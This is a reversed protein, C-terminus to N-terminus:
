KAPYYTAHIRDIEQFREIARLAQYKRTFFHLICGEQGVLEPTDTVQWCVASHRILTYNGLQTM